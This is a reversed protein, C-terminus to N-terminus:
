FFWPSTFARRGLLLCRACIVLSHAPFPGQKRRTHISALVEWFLRYLARARCLVQRSVIRGGGGRQYRQQMGDVEPASPHVNQPDANYETSCVTLVTLVVLRRLEWESVM